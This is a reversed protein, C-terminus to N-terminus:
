CSVKLKRTGSFALLGLGLIAISSPEPVNFTMNGDHQIQFHQTGGIVDYNFDLGIIDQVTVMLQASKNGTTVSLDDGNMNRFYGAEFVVNLNLACFGKNQLPGPSIDISCGGTDVAFSAIKTGGDFMNNGVNITDVYLGSDGSDFAVAINGFDDTTAFGSFSYNYFVEYAPDVGLLAGGLKFNVIDTSGTESFAEKVKLTGNNDSDTQTAQAIDPDYDIFDFIVESGVTGNFSSDDFTLVDASSYFSLSTILSALLTKKM